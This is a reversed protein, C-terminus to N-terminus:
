NNKKSIKYTKCKKLNLKNVWKDSDYSSTDPVWKAYVVGSKPMTFSVTENKEITCLVSKDDLEGTESTAKILESSTVKDSFPGVSLFLKVRTADSDIWVGSSNKTLGKEFYPDWSIKNGQEAYFLPFGSQLSVNKLEETVTASKEYKIVDSTQYISSSEVDDSFMGVSPFIKSADDSINMNFNRAFPKPINTGDYHYGGSGGMSTNVTAVSLLNKSNNGNDSHTRFTKTFASNSVCWEDGSSYNIIHDYETTKGDSDAELKINTLVGYIKSSFEVDASTSAEWKFRPTIVGTSSLLNSVYGNPLTVAALNYATLSGSGGEFGYFNINNSAYYESGLAYQERYDKAIGAWYMTYSTAGESEKCTVLPRYGGSTSKYRIAGNFAAGYSKYNNTGWTYQTTWGGGFAIDISPYAFEPDFVGSFCTVDEWNSFFLNNTTQAESSLGALYASIASDIKANLGSYYSDINKNYTELMNDFEAKTIFNSGDQSSVDAYSVASLAMIVLLVILQKLKKCKISM